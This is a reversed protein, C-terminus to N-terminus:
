GTRVLQSLPIWVWDPRNNLEYVVEYIAKELELAGLARRVQEPKGPVIQSNNAKLVELYITLFASRAAREWAPLWASDIAGYAEAQITGAAYALSRMMGAVDRLPSYKARREELSRQPEGDFDIAVYRGASTRLVQGLHYDGHIRMRLSGVLAHFGAMHEQITPTSTAVLDALYRSRESLGPRSAELLALASILSDGAAQQWSQAMERSIREPALESTWPDGALASQMNATLEAVARVEGISRVEHFSPSATEAEARLENLVVTWADGLNPVFEAQVALSAVGADTVISLAAAIRPACRPGPWTNLLTALELEPSPGYPLRRNLKVVWDTGYRISTNSQEVELPKAPLLTLDISEDILKRRSVFGPLEGSDSAIRGLWSLFSPSATADSFPPPSTPVVYDAADQDSFHVRVVNIRTSSDIEETLIVRCSAAPRAKDAFWRQRPLWDSLWTEIAQPDSEM